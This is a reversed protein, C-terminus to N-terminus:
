LKRIAEVPRLRIAKYAPYLAGVVATIAVAMAIQTYINFELTPYIIESMGFQQMARSFASLDIGVQNLYQVTGIGLLMGPVTAVFALLITELVIMSFVSLKNMGVAMLMGLEKYRELVAMLMTNIIGFVLALMIITMFINASVQIQNEFLKIDPSIERYNEVLLEPFLEVMDQQATELFEPDNLSIAMEHAIEKQGLLQNLDQRKVFVTGEDIPTNGSEFFGAIRFAAATIEGDLDLFNLVIKSRVKLKLKEKLRAGVLVQNKRGESFYDGEVIQEQLLTIGAETEPDVGRIQTGRTGKATNMMGNLLTRYTVWEVGPVSKIKDAKADADTWYYQAEQEKKFEPHHIQIHSIQKQIANRVYGRVMGVSFSIMFILAWIGVIIAGIVVFSRTPNRWINRWAITFLM